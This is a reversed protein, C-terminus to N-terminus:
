RISSVLKAVEFISMYEATSSSLSIGNESQRTIYIFATGTVTM